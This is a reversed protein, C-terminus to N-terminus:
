KKLSITSKHEERPKEIGVPQPVNFSYPNKYLKVSHFLDKVRQKPIECTEELFKHISNKSQITVTGDEEFKAKIGENLLAMSLYKAYQVDEFRLKLTNKDLLTTTAINQTSEFQDLLHIAVSGIHHNINLYEEFVPSALSYPVEQKEHPHFLEKVKFHPIKSITELFKEIYFQKHIVLENQKINNGITVKIGENLLARHLHKAYEADEFRIKLTNNNELNVKASIQTSPFGKLLQVVANGIYTEVDASPAPTPITLTYQLELRAGARVYTEPRMFHAKNLSYVQASDLGSAAAEEHSSSDFTYYSLGHGIESRGDSALTKAINADPYHTATYTYIARQTNDILAIKDLVKKYEPHDKELESLAKEWGLYEYEAYYRSGKARPAALFFADILEAKPNNILKEVLLQLYIKTYIETFSKRLKDHCFYGGGIINVIPFREGNALTKDIEESLVKELHQEFLPTFTAHNCTYYGNPLVSYDGHLDVYGFHDVANYPDKSHCTLRFGTRAVKASKNKLSVVNGELDIGFMGYSLYTSILYYYVSLDPAPTLQQRTVNPNAAFKQQNERSIRDREDNLEVIYRHIENKKLYHLAQKYHQYLNENKGQHKEKQATLYDVILEEHYTIQNSQQLAIIEEKSISLHDAGSISFHDRAELDKGGMETANYNIGYIEPNLANIEPWISVSFNFEALGEERNPFAANLVNTIPGYHNKLYGFDPHQTKPLNLFDFQHNPM